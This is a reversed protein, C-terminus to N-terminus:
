RADGSLLVNRGYASLGHIRLKCSVHTIRKHARVYTALRMFCPYMPIIYVYQIHPRSGPTKHRTNTSLCRSVSTNHAGRCNFSIAIWPYRAQKRNITLHSAQAFQGFVKLHFLDIKRQALLQKYVHVYWITLLRACVDTSVNINKGGSREVHDNLVVPISYFQWRKVSSLRYTMTVTECHPMVGGPEPCYNDRRM